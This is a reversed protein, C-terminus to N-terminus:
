KEGEQYMKLIKSIKAQTLRGYTDKNIRVVPSLSCCGLCRVTELTWKLDPTTEGRKIKLEREFKQLINEGGRVHCATGLCVGIQYKGRPKLSFAKYFTAIEYIRTEPIQLRKSLYKLHERPLWNEERQIDQLIPILASSDYKYKSIIKEIEEFSM